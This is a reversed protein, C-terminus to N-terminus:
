LDPDPRHIGDPEKMYQKPPNPDPEDYASYPGVLARRQEWLPLPTSEGSGTFGSSNNM